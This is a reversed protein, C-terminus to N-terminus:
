RSDGLNALFAGRRGTLQEVLNAIPSIGEHRNALPLNGDDVCAPVLEDPV